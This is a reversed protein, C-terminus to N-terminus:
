SAKATQGAEAPLFISFVTGSRGPVVTSRYRIKGGHKRVIERSVWLGLGTGVEEKTTFFPEFLKKRQEPRIGIGTDGVVIRAGSRLSNDLEHSQHVRARLTGGPPMSDIANAILNSVVQRVEGPLAVVEANEDYERVIRIGRSEARKLYISIAEEVIRALKVRQPAAPDRYFGLTQRTVHAVRQLEHEAQQAYQRSKEDLSDSTRLLYLLNTVAELPNNIEHAITASLRGAAALKESRRLAEEAQKRDTIDFGIGLMREPSGNEDFRVQGRAMVWRVTNDPFITRYESEYDGKGALAAHIAQECAARDEPHVLNMWNEFTPPLSGIERGHLVWIGESWWLEGTKVNWEWSGLGAALQAFQLRQETTRLAQATNRSESIDQYIVTLGHLGPHAAVRYWRNFPPYFYEFRASEGTRVAERYNKEVESGVLGPFRQWLNRGIMAESSFGSLAAGARNVYTITWNRDFSIFGETISQLIDNLRNASRTAETQAVSKQLAVTIVIFSVFFFLLLPIGDRLRGWLAHYPAIFYYDALLGSLLTTMAAPGVGCFRASLAVAGFFFIFPLNAGAFPLSNAALALMVFALAIGYRIAPHKRSLDFEALAQFVFGM